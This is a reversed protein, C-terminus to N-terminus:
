NKWLDSVSDGNHLNDITQAILKAVSITVFTKKNKKLKKIFDNAVPVTDTVWISAFKSILINKLTEANFDAHTAIAHYNIIHGYEKSLAVAAKSLSVFTSIIDDVFIATDINGSIEGQIYVKMARTKGTRPDRDKDTIILPVKLEEAIKRAYKSGGMDGSAIVINSLNSFKTRIENIILKTTDLNEMPPNSTCSAPNHLKCVVLRDAGATKLLDPFFDSMKPQRLHRHEVDQRQQVLKPMVVTIKHPQGYKISRVFRLYDVYWKDTDDGNLSTFIVYVDNDRVTKTQHPLREGDPFCVTNHPSPIVELLKAIEEGLNTDKGFVFIQKPYPINLNKM